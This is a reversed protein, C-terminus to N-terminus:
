RLQLEDGSKAADRSLGDLSGPLAGLELSSHFRRYIRNLGAIPVGMVYLALILFYVATTRYRGTKEFTRPDSVIEEPLQKMRSIRWLRRYLEADELIPVLPYGGARDFASRRCFIGHDGLAFGFVDVGLNGLSDGVRYIWERRPYRLRFCGGAVRDDALTCQIEEIANSPPRLDAHLFWVINGTAVAAGANMQAARGRPAILLRDTFLRAISITDDDSGGDAVIIELDAGFTRLHRLFAGILREENLVPVIISVSLADSKM